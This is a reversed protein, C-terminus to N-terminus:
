DQIWSDLLLEGVFMEVGPSVELGAPGKCCPWGDFGLGFYIQLKEKEKLTKFIWWFMKVESINFWIIM